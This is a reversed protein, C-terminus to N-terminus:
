NIFSELLDYTLNGNLKKDITVSCGGMDKFYSVDFKLINNETAYQVIDYVNQYNDDSVHLHLSLKSAHVYTLVEDIIEVFNSYDLEGCTDSLCLENINELQDYYLIENIIKQNCQRGDIPCINICSIYLKM